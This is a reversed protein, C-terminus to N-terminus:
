GDDKDRYRDRYYRRGGVLGGWTTSVSESNSIDLGGEERRHDSIRM